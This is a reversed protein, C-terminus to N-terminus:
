KLITQSKSLSLELNYNQSSGGAMVNNFQTM